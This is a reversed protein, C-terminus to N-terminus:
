VFPLCISSFVRWSNASARRVYEGLPVISITIAWCSLSDKFNPDLILSANVFAPKETCNLGRCINLTYWGPTVNQQFVDAGLRGAYASVMALIKKFFPISIVAVAYLLDIKVLSKCIKTQWFGM